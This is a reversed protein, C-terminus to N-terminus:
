GYSKTWCAGSGELCAFQEEDRDNRGIKASAAIIAIGFHATNQLGYSMTCMRLAVLLRSGCLRHGLANICSALSSKWISPIINGGSQWM